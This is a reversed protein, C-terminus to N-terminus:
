NSILSIKSSRSIEFPKFLKANTFISHQHHNDDNWPIMQGRYTSIDFGKEVVHLEDHGSIFPGSLSKM